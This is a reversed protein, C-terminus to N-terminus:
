PASASLTLELGFLHSGLMVCYIGWSPYVLMAGQASQSGQLGGGFFFQVIFLSSLFSVCLLPASNSFACWLLASPCAASKWMFKWYVFGPFPSPGVTPPHFLAPLLGCHKDGSGTLLMWLWIVSCFQFIILL